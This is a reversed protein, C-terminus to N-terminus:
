MACICPSTSEGSISAVADAYTTFPQFLTDGQQQSWKNDPPAIEYLSWLPNKAGYPPSEGPTPNPLPPALRYPKHDCPVARWELGIVGWKTSALKEYAWLSLDFHPM